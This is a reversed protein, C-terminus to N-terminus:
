ELEAVVGYHDSAPLGIDDYVQKGYVACLKLRPFEEPYPNRLLIRDFRANTEITNGQFCPNDRFNLTDEPTINVREGYAAALDYWRPNAEAGQLLCEGELFRQVDSSPNGNFDGLLYVRQGQLKGARKEVAIIQRQREKESDWPLHINVVSFTHGEMKITAFIARAEDMWSGCALFPVRSILALGEAEGPYPFFCFHEYNANKAIHEAMEMSSVEQLALVDGGTKRIENVLFAERRPMGRQSNWINYTGIRM